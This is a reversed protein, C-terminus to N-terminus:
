CRGQFAFFASFDQGKRSPRGSNAPNLKNLPLLDYLFDIPLPDQLFPVRRGPFAGGEPRPVVAKPDVDVDVAVGRVDLHRPVPLRMQAPLSFLFEEAQPRNAVCVIGSQVSPSHSYSETDRYAKIADAKAGNQFLERSLSPSRVNPFLVFCGPSLVRFRSLITVPM